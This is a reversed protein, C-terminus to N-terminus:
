SASDLITPWIHSAVLVPFLKLRQRIHVYVHSILWLLVPIYVKSAIQLYPHFRLQNHDSEDQRSSLLQKCGIEMESLCM